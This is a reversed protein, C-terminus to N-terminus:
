AVGRTLQVPLKPKKITNIRRPLMHLRPPMPVNPFSKVSPLFRRVVQGVNRCLCAMCLKGLCM